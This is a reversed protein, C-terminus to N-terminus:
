EQQQAEGNGGASLITKIQELPKGKILSAVKACGLHLLSKIDMWNAALILDYLKQRDDGIKDIWEGDWKDKVVETMKNSRLPKEVIPPETGQHHEMYEIILKLIAGSVGPMDLSAVDPESDLSTKVLKSISANKISVDFEQQDKSKLKLTGDDEEGLGMVEDKKEDSM